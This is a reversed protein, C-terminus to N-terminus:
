FAALIDMGAHAIMNARLGKRLRASVGFIGALVFILVMNKWGEYANVLGFIAAQGLIGISLHGTWATFQVQLYGRFVTEESIRASIAALIWAAIELGNNPRMGELSVWGTRGLVRVMIPEVLFVIACLLLAVLIDLWLSIGRFNRQFEVLQTRVSGVRARYRNFVLSSARSQSPKIGNETVGIARFVDGADRARLLHAM